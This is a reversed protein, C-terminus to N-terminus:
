QAATKPACIAYKAPDAKGFSNLTGSRPNIVRAVTNSTSVETWAFVNGTYAGVINPCAGESTGGLWRNEESIYCLDTLNGLKMKQSECWAFASWWNMGIASLCYKTGNKGQIPYGGDCEAWSSTSALICYLTAIASLLLSKSKISM